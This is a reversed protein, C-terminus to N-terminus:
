RGILAQDNGTKKISMRLTVKQTHANGATAAADASVVWWKVGGGLKTDTKAVLQLELTAEEIAFRLTKGQGEESAEQLQARLMALAQALPFENEM